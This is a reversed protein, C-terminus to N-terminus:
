QGHRMGAPDRRAAVRGTIWSRIEGRLWGVRKQGVRIPSPFQGEKILRYIGTTSLSTMRQVEGRSILDGETSLEVAEFKKMTLELTWQSESTGM